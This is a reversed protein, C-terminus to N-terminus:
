FSVLLIPWPENVVPPGSAFFLKFYPWTVAVCHVKQEILGEGLFLQPHTGDLEVRQAVGQAPDEM